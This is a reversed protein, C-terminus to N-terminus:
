SQASIGINKFYRTIDFHKKGTTSENKWYQAGRFIAVRQINSNWYTNSGFSGNSDDGIFLDSNTTINQTDAFSLKLTGDLWVKTTGGKRVALFHYWTSISIPNIVTHINGGVWWSLYPTATLVELCFADNFNYGFVDEYSGTWSAPTKFVCEVTYDGTGIAQIPNTHGVTGLTGGTVLTTQSIIVTTVSSFSSSVVTYTGNNNTAGTINIIKGPIFYTTYDTSVTFTNNATVSSITKAIDRYYKDYTASSYNFLASQSGWKKNSTDLTPVTTSKFHGNIFGRSRNGVIISDENHPEFLFLCNKNNSIVSHQRIRSM